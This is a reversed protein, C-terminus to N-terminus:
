GNYGVLILNGKIKLSQSKPFVNLFKTDWYEKNYKVYSSKTDLRNFLVLGNKSLLKKLNELFALDHFPDPIVDNIFIDINILDFKKQNDRVYEYADDEYISINFTSKPEVYKKYLEIIASDKEIGTFSLKEFYEELIEIISGMGLGLILVDNIKQEKINIQKFAEAFAYYHKGYSYVANETSLELSNNKLRLSIAESWQSTKNELPIGILYSLFRQWNKIHKYKM